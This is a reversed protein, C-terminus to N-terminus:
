CLSMFSVEIVQVQKWKPFQVMLKDQEFKYRDKQLVQGPRYDSELWKTAATLERTAETEIWPRMSASMTCFAPTPTRNVPCSPRTEFVRFDRASSGCKLFPPHTDNSPNKSRRCSAIKTNTSFSPPRFSGTRAREREDRLRMIEAFGRTRQLTEGM